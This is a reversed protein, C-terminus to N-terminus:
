LQLYAYDLHSHPAYLAWAVLFLGISSLLLYTICFQSSSHLPNFTLTPFPALPQTLPSHPFSSPLSSALINNYSFAM